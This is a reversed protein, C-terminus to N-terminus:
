QNMNKPLGLSVYDQFTSLMARRRNICDLISSKRCQGKLHFNLRNSLPLLVATALYIARTDDSTHRTSSIYFSQLMLKM